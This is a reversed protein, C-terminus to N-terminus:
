PNIARHCNSKLCPKDNIKCFWKYGFRTTDYYQYPCDKSDVKVKWNYIKNKGGSAM